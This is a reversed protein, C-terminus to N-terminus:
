KRYEELGNGEREGYIVMIKFKSNWTEIMNKYNIEYTYESVSFM